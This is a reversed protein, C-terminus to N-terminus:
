YTCPIDNLVCIFSLASSLYFGLTVPAVIYVSMFIANISIFQLLETENFTVVKQNDINFFCFCYKVFKYYLM